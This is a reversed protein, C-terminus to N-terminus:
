TARPFFPSNKKRLTVHVHDAVPQQYRSLMSPQQHYHIGHMHQQPTHTKAHAARSFQQACARQTNLTCLVASLSSLM